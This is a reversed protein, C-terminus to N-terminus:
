DFVLELVPEVNPPEYNAKQLIYEWDKEPKELFAIFDVYYMLMLRTMTVLNSFSCHRKLKRQMITCLLNAILVVWTQVEIANVSEGYFFHLPFNQKLQKYLTEIAWRRKYIEEIDEVSLDFNNTLLIVSKKKNDSWLEVRRSTHRLDGKDFIIHQDTHTVLGKPNVYTTSKLVKYTLNKKMKTVYCVGEETLRQFQAYDIYARDM